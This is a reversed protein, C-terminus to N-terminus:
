EEEIEYHWGELDKIRFTSIIAKLVKMRGKKGIWSRYKQGTKENVHLVITGEPLKKVQEATLVKNM